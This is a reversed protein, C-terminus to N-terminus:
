FDCILEGLHILLMVPFFIINLFIILIKTYLSSDKYRYELYFSQKHKSTMIHSALIVLSSGIYLFLIFLIM